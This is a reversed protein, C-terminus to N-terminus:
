GLRTACRTVPMRDHLEGMAENPGCTLITCTLVEEGSTPSKWEDRLKPGDVPLEVAATGALSIGARDFRDNRELVLQELMEGAREARDDLAEAPGFLAIKQAPPCLVAGLPLMRSRAEIGHRL